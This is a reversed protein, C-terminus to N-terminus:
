NIKLNEYKTWVRVTLKIVYMLFGSLNTDTIRIGM